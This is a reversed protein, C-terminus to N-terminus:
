VSITPLLFGLGINKEGQLVDLADTIYRMIRTYKKLCQEENPTFPTLRLEEFLKRMGRSKTRLLRVICRIAYYWNTTTPEILEMILDSNESSSTQKNLLLQIKVITSNKLEQFTHDQIKSIDAKAILSLLHCACKRHM